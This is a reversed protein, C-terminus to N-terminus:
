VLFSVVAIALATVWGALGSKAYLSSSGNKKKDKDKSIPTIATGNPYFYTYNNLPSPFLGKATLEKFNWEIADEAKYNWFIWGASNKAYEILQIEVFKRIATKHDESFDDYNQLASCSRSVTSNKINGTSIIFKSTTNGNLTSNSSSSSNSPAVYLSPNYDTLNFGERQIVDASSVLQDESFTGDYRAGTGLGNLYKACDTIAGSFEGVLSVHYKQIDGISGAYDRIGQVRDDSSRNLQWDTFVEYHHHDFVIDHFYDESENEDLDLHDTFESSVNTYQNSFQDNWWGIPQFAEQVLFYNKSDQTVRYDYYANHTFDLLDTINLKPAMPENAIEIGTIVTSYNQGGYKAFIDNLTKYSLELFEPDMEENLWNVDGRQGSNDFGNQSGPMGHLDVWVKLGLNRAWEIARDLYKIQGQVYPDNELKHFAWYGIPIRVTNFGYNKIDIFDQETYYTDWHPELLEKTNDEGLKVSLSYEDIPWLSENTGFQEQEFMSPTLFPELVFWGGLSIGKVTDNQYDWIEKGSLTELGWILGESTINTSNTSNTSSADTIPQSVSSRAALLIALATSIFTSSTM